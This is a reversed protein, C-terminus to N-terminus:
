HSWTASPSCRRIARFRSIPCRRSAVPATPTRARLKPSCRGRAAVGARRRGLGQHSGRDSPATGPRSTSVTPDVGTVRRGNATRCRAERASTTARASLRDGFTALPAKGGDVLLVRVSAPDFTRFNDRLSRVALERIQGALEVGTPGAGVVVITLWAQQETPDTRAEAMEFAGFIRRRLELADDLTKM